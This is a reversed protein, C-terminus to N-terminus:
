SLLRWSNIQYTLISVKEFIFSSQFEKKKFHTLAEEVKEVALDKFAITVHPHFTNRMEIKKELVEEVCQKNAQHCQELTSSHNTNIFIVNPNFFGFGDLEIPFSISSRNLAHIRNQLFPLSNPHMWFPPVLTIHPPSNLAHKAGFKRQAEYKLETILVSIDKPPLIALFFLNKDM